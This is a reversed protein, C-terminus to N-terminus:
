LAGWEVGNGTFVLPKSETRLGRRIGYGQCVPRGFTCRGLPQFLQGLSEAKQECLAVFPLIWLAIKGTQDYRCLTLVEAVASKGAGACDFLPLRQACLFETAEWCGAQIYM